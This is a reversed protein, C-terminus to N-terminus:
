KVVLESVLRTRHGAHVQDCSLMAPLRGSTPQEVTNYPVKTSRLTLLDGPIHTYPRNGEGVRVPHRVPTVALVLSWPIQISRPSARSPRLDVSNLPINM